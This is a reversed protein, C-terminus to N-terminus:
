DEVTKTIALVKNYIETFFEGVVKGNASNTSLGSNSMKAVVIETTIELAKKEPRDM